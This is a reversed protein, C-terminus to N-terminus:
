QACGATRQSTVAPTRKFSVSSDRSPRTMSLVSSCLGGCDLESSRSVNRGDAITPPALELFSAVVIGHGRGRLGEAVHHLDANAAPYRSGHAILLLATNM